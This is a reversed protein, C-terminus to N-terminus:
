LTVSVSRFVGAAKEVNASTPELAPLTSPLIKPPPVNGIVAEGPSYWSLTTAIGAECCCYPSYPRETTLAGGVTVSDAEGADTIAPPAAVKVQVVVLAVAQVPLPPVKVPLWAVPEPLRATETGVVVVYVRLQVPGPPEADFLTVTVAVEATVEEPPPPASSGAM